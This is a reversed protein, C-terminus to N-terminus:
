SSEGFDFKEKTGGMYPLGHGEEIMIENLSKTDVGNYVNVLIRGYKDFDLCHIEVLGEKGRELLEIFRARAMKAAEKEKERNPNSLSPKMEPTDYGMCRCKYKMKEGNFFFISSFTDGDYINVPKVIFRKGKFSFYPIDKENTEKLEKIIDIHKKENNDIESIKLDNTKMVSLQQQNNNDMERVEKNTGLCIGM